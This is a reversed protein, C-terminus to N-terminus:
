YNTGNTQRELLRNVEETTFRIAREGIRIAKIIGKRRWNDVTWISVRFIEAVEDRTYTKEDINM